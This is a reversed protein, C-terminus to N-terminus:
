ITRVRTRLAFKGSSFRWNRPIPFQRRQYLSSPLNGQLRRRQEPGQHRRHPAYRPRQRTRDGSDDTYHWDRTDDTHHRNGPAYDTYHWDRPRRHPALERPRRRHPALGPPTTPTTGTGPPTTPTTGTGPPTPITGTGPIPLGGTGPQTGAINGPNLTPAFWDKILQDRLFDSGM